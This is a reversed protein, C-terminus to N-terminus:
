TRHSGNTGATQRQHVSTHGDLSGHATNGHTQNLIGTLVLISHQTVDKTVLVVQAIHIELGSTSGVTQSSCLHIDLTVTERVLDQLLSQHLGLSATLVDQALHHLSHRFRTGLQLRM